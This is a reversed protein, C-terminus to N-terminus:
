ATDPWKPQLKGLPAANIATDAHATRLRPSYLAARDFSFAIRSNGKERYWDRVLQKVRRSNRRRTAVALFAGKLKVGETAGQAIKLRYQRGLYLHTEGGV